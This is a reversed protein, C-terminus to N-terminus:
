ALARLLVEVRGGERVQRSFFDFQVFKKMRLFSM